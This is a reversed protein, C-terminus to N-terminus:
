LTWCGPSGVGPLTRVGLVPSRPARVAEHLRQNRRLSATAARCTKCRTCAFNGGCTRWGSFGTRIRPAMVM